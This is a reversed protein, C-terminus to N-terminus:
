FLKALLEELIKANSGTALIISVVLGILAYRIDKRILKFGGSVSKNESRFRMAIERGALLGLFVWTTSMPINNVEKFIYLLVAYTFDIVTASRVDTVESKEEVIEQIREGRKRFLFGLGFFILSAFAIFEGTSLSRPLFVAINATDQMVWTSWLFGTSLWQLIPWYSQAPKKIMEAMRKAVLNWIILAVFFAVFYGLMSKSLMKAISGLDASFCSLILFTTSVPVKLRTLILLFAPAAIQLFNFSSPATAFGKSSLREFSVDGNYNLWSYTVTALFIGGIYLWMHWWPRQRNSAIFTGLTQLSDNAIASYGALAFGIWMAISPYPYFLGCLVFILAIFIFYSQNTKFISYFTDKASVLQWSLSSPLRKNSLNM